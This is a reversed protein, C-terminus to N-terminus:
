RKAVEVNSAVNLLSPILVREKGFKACAERCAESARKIDTVIIGDFPLPVMELSSFMPFGVFTEDKQERAVIATIKINKEIACLMSIEAVETAGVLVVSKWARREAESFIAACDTRAQRFFALSNSLHAMTLKSKEAFGKPTLLYSYRRAPYQKVKVYGKKVCYKIYANVLGVAIGFDSARSRQSESGNREVSNLLELIIRNQEVNEPV